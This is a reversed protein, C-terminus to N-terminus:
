TKKGKASFTLHPLGAKPFSIGSGILSGPTTSPAQASILHWAELTIPAMDGAGKVGPPSQSPGRETVHSCSAFPSKLDLLLSGSVRITVLPLQHQARQVGGM